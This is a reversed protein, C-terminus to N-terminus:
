KLTSGHLIENEKCRSLQPLHPLNEHAGVNRKGFTVIRNSKEHLVKCWKKERIDPLRQILVPFFEDKPSQGPHMCLRAIVVEQSRM